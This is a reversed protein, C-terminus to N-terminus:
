HKYYCIIVLVSCLCCKDIYKLVDVYIASLPSGIHRCKTIEYSVFLMYTFYSQSM